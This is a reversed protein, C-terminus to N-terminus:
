YYFILYSIYGKEGRKGLKISQQYSHLFCCTVWGPRSLSDFERWTKEKGTENQTSDNQIKM